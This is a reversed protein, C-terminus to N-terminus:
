KNNDSAHAGPDSQILNSRGYGSSVMDIWETFRDQVCRAQSLLYGSSERICADRSM